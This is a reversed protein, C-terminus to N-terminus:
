KDPDPRHVWRTPGGRSSFSAIMPRGHEDLPPYPTDDGGKVIFLVILALAAVYMLWVVFLPALSLIPIPHWNIGFFIDLLTAVAGALVSTIPLLIFMLATAVAMISVTAAFKIADPKM